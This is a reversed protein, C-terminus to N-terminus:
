EGVIHGLVLRHCIDQSHLYALGDAIQRFLFLATDERLTRYAEMVGLLDGGDTYPSYNPRSNANLEESLIHM